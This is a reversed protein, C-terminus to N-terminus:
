LRRTVYRRPWQHRTCHGTNYSLRRTIYKRAWPHRTYNGFLRINEIVTPADPSANEQGNTDPITALSDFARLPQNKPIQPTIQQNADADDEVLQTQFMDPDAAEESDPPHAATDDYVSHSSRPAASESPESHPHVKLITEVLESEVFDSAGNTGNPSPVEASQHPHENPGTHAGGEHSENELHSRDISGMTVDDHLEYGDGDM